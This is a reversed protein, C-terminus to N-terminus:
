HSQQQSLVAKVTEYDAAQLQHVNGQFALKWHEKPWKGIHELTDKFVKSDVWDEEDLILEPKIHVRWPYNEDKKKGRSKWIMEEGEFFESTVQAIGAFQQIGTVYYILKDGPAMEMAKKRHRSKVGQVSFERAATANFNEKSTVIMWYNAM